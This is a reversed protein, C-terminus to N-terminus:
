GETRKPRLPGARKQEVSKADCEGGYSSSFRFVQPLTQVQEAAQALLIEVGSLAFLALAFAFQAFWGRRFALFQLAPTGVSAAGSCRPSFSDM